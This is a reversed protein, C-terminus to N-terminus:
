WSIYSTMMQLTKLNFDVDVRGSCHAMEGLGSICNEAHPDRGPTAKRHIVEAVDARGMLTFSTTGQTGDTSLRAPRMVVAADCNWFRLVVDGPQAASCVLGM